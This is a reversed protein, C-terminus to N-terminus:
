HTDTHLLTHSSAGASSGSFVQGGIGSARAYDAAITRIVNDAGADALVAVTGGNGGGSIRAGYIGADAGVRRLREVLDDTGTSGLGCHTYSAHSMYMCEGMIRLGDHSLKETQMAKCIQMFVRVRFHEQIPHSTCALVAYNMAPDVRTVTDTIGDFQGLFAEGSLTSPIHSAFYESFESVSVNALYGNWRKDSIDVAPVDSSAIGAQELLLRYGMFSAVRVAGYDAGSVAHRLGSDIGWVSLGDPLQLSEGVIDPQCLMNLLADKQGMSSAMQDMLGCPAGVILNEVRQCLVAQRHADIELGMLRTVSRMTAVEIAASSSVGKGEPVMSHAYLVLGCDLPMDHEIMLVTLVGAFYAAWRQDEPKAAFYDRMQSHSCPTSTDALYFDELPIQISRLDHPGGSGVSIIQVTAQVSRQCFVVASESLPLQLVTSGSYDSIGGMVDLRAPARGVMLPKKTDFHPAVLDHKDEIQRTLLLLANQVDEPLESTNRHAQTTSGDPNVDSVASMKSTIKLDQQWM